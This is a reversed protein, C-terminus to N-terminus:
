RSAHHVVHRVSWGQTSPIKFKGFREVNDFGATWLMRKWTKISPLWYVVASDRDAFYRSAPFPVLGTLPDYEEASIFTGRCLNAIRELALLQDRLHILVSGCFVLDFQGLEEPTAHYISQNVREVNSGLLEKALRFGAGRPTDPFHKPRRRPPWDLDREDDLDLAVVEAGRREMEFAWFGDWTGVDLARMGDLREPLGYKAILPRLDFLGPTTQGDPLELTHYWGLEQVSPTITTDATM